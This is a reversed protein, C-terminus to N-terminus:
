RCSSWSCRGECYSTAVGRSPNASSPQGRNSRLYFLTIEPNFLGSPLLARPRVEKIRLPTMICLSGLSSQLYQVDLCEQEPYAFHRFSVRSSALILMGFFSSCSSFISSLYIAIIATIRITPTTNPKMPYEASFIKFHAVVISLSGNFLVPMPLYYEIFILVIASLFRLFVFSMCDFPLLLCYCARLRRSWPSSLRCHQEHPIPM